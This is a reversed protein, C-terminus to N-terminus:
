EEETKKKVIDPGMNEFDIDDNKLSYKYIRNGYKKIIPPIVLFGIVTVATIGILWCVTKKTNM